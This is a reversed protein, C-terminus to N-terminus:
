TEGVQYIVRLQPGVQEYLPEIPPQHEFRRSQLCGPELDVTM